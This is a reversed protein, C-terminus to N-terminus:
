DEEETEEEKPEDKKRALESLECEEECNKTIKCTLCCSFERMCKNERVVCRDGALHECRAWNYYTRLTKDREKVIHRELEGAKYMTHLIGKAAGKSIGCNRAVELRSYAKGKNAIMLTKVLKLNYPHRGRKRM